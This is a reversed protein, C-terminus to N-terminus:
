QQLNLMSNIFNQSADTNSNKRIELPITDDDEVPPPAFQPAALPKPGGQEIPRNGQEKLLAEMRELQAQIAREGPTQDRQLSELFEAKVWPFLEFLVELRGQRLDHILRLGQRITSAFSRTEKLAEIHDALAYEEPKNMDRWFTFRLSFRSPPMIFEKASYAM